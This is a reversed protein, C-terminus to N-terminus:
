ALHVACTLQRGSLRWLAFQPEESAVVWKVDLRRAPRWAAHGSGAQNSARKLRASAYTTAAAPLAHVSGCAVIIISQMIASLPWLPTQSRALRQAFEDGSTRAATASQAEPLFSM